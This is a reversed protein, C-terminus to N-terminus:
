AENLCLTILIKLEEKVNPHKKTEKKRLTKQRCAIMPHTGGKLAKQKM